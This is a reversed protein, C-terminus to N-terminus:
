SISIGHKIAQDKLKLFNKTQANKMKRYGGFSKPAIEPLEYFIHYYEIEDLDKQKEKQLQELHELYNKKEEATRDDKFPRQSSKIANVSNGNKDFITDDKGTYFFVSFNHGCGDHVKGTERIVDPLKPFIKSKGSISYVRGQLKNCEECCARHASMSIYDTNYKGCDFLLKDMMDKASNYFSFSNHCVRLTKLYSQVIAKYKESEEFHGEKLLLHSYILFDKEQYGNDAAGMFLHIRELISNSEKLLGKRRLNGAKMRLVYELSGTIGYGHMIDINTFAPIPICRLDDLNELDYKVGDSVLYRADYWSEKDTPYVKYMEGNKFYITQADPVDDSSSNFVSKIKNFLSM